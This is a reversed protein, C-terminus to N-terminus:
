PVTIFILEDDNEEEDPFGDGSDMQGNDGPAAMVITPGVALPRCGPGGCVNDRRPFTIGPKIPIFSVAPDNTTANDILFVGGQFVASGVTVTHTTAFIAQNSNPVVPRGVPSHNGGETLRIDTFDGGPTIKLVGIQGRRAVTYAATDSNVRALSPLVWSDHGAPELNSDPPDPSDTDPPNTPFAAFTLFPTGGGIDNVLGPRFPGTTVFLMQQDNMVLGSIGHSNYFGQPDDDTAPDDDTDTVPLTVIEPVPALSDISRLVHVNVEIGSFSPSIASEFDEEFVVATGADGNAVAIPRRMFGFGSAFTTVTVAGPLGEVVYIEDNAPCQGESGHNCPHVLEREQQLHDPGTGLTVLGNDNVRRPRNQPNAAMRGLTVFPALTPPGGNLGTVVVLGDDENDIGIWGCIAGTPDAFEGDEGPSAFIVTSDSIRVARAAPAGSLFVGGSDTGVALATTSVTGGPGLGQVVLIEDDRALKGCAGRDHFFGDAGPSAFIVTNDNVRIPDAGHTGLCLDPVSQVTAGTAGLGRLLFLVDDSVGSTSTRDECFEGNAGVGLVSATQDNIRLPGRIGLRGLPIFECEQGFCHVAGDDSTAQIRDLGPSLIIFTDDDIRTMLGSQLDPGGGEEAELTTVGPGSFPADLSGTAGDTLVLLKNVSVTQAFNPTAGAVLLTALAVVIGRM